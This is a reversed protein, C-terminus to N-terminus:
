KPAFCCFIIDGPSNIVIGKQLNWRQLQLELLACVCLCVYVCKCMGCASVCVRVCFLVLGPWVKENTSMLEQKTAVYKDTADSLQTDM